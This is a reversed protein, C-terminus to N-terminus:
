EGRRDQELQLYADDFEAIGSLRAQDAIVARTKGKIALGDEKLRKLVRNLHVATLGLADALDLQTIPFEFGDADGLGIANYRLQMECLLHAARPLAEKRTVNVMWQALVNADVVCDRWFATHLAPFREALDRLAAHRIRLIRTPALAHLAWTVHPAVVSHLDAMDGPIHLAVITRNGNGVQAFRAVLGDVVLCAETVRDGLHVFDGRVSTIRGDLGLLAEREEASLPSRLVLRREYLALAERATRKM